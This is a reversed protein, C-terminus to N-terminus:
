HLECLTEHVRKLDLRKLDPCKLGLLRVVM